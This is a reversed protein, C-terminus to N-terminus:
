DYLFNGKQLSVFGQSSNQVFAIRNDRYYQVLEDLTAYPKEGAKWPALVLGSDETRQIQMHVPRDKYIVTLAYPFIHSDPGCRRRIVFAGEAKGKVALAAQQRTPHGDILWPRRLEVNTAYMDPDEQVPEADYEPPTPADWDDDFQDEYVLDYEPEDPLQQGHDTSGAVDAKKSAISSSAPEMFM